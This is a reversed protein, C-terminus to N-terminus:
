EGETENAKEAKREKRKEEEDILKIALEGAVTAPAWENNSNKVHYCGFKFNDDLDEWRHGAKYLSRLVVDRKKNREEEPLYTNAMMQISRTIGINQTIELVDVADEEPVAYVEVDFIPLQLYVSALADRRELVTNDFSESDKEFIEAAKESYDMVLALFNTYFITSCLGGVYSCIKQIDNGLFASDNGTNRVIFTMEDFQTFVETCGGIRSAVDISTNEMVTAFLKDFPKNLQATVSKFNRGNCHIVVMSHRPLKNKYINTFERLEKKNM